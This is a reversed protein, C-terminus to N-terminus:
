CHSIGDSEKIEVVHWEPYYAVIPPTYDPLNEIRHRDKLFSRLSTKFNNPSVTTWGPFYIEVFKKWGHFQEMNGPTTEPIKINNIYEDVYEMKAKWTEVYRDKQAQIFVNAEEETAFSKVFQVGECYDYDMNVQIIAYM